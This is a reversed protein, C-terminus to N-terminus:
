LVSQMILMFPCSREEYCEVRIPRQAEGDPLAM